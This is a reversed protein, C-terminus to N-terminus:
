GRLQNGVQVLGMFGVHVAQHNLRNPVMCDHMVLLQIDM